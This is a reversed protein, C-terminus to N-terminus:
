SGTYNIQRLGIWLKSKYHRWHKRKWVAVMKEDHLKQKAHKVIEDFKKGTMKEEGINDLVLRSVSKGNDDAIKKLRAIEEPTGSITTSQFVKKKGVPLPKRGGGAKRKREKTM